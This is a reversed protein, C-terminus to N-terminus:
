RGSSMASTRLLGQHHLCDVIRDIVPLAKADLFEGVESVSVLALFCFVGSRGM